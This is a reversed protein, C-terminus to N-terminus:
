SRKLLFLPLKLYKLGYSSNKWAPKPDDRAFYAYCDSGWWSRIWERMSLVRQKRYTWFAQFDQIADLWRVGDRYDLVPHDLQGTLDLYQILPFNVGAYAAQINQQWLRANLEIMKFKGDREDKKFEISGTGRYSTGRFFRLATDALPQDHLSEMCTGVGFDTPYQRIKRTVFVALPEHNESLYACVKVHNTNPGKIVEQVMAQLKRSFIEKYREILEQPSAVQFGKNKFTEQWVHSYYPKIFAPYSITQKISEVEALSEPYFTSPYPIGIREALEYQKRKNIICELIDEPPIAFLFYQSLEKRFRSVFLIYADSTPYLIGKGSLKSGGDMLIGLVHEPQEHPHPTILPRCYRSKLGPADRKFDVGVVQIGERGLSRVVGLGNSDMNFVFAVHYNKDLM